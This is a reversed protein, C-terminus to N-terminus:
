SYHQRTQGRGERKGPASPEGGDAMTPGLGEFSVSHFDFARARHEERRMQLAARAVVFLVWGALVLAFGLTMLGALPTEQSAESAAAMAGAIPSHAWGIMSVLM